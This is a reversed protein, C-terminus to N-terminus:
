IGHRERNEQIYEESSNTKTSQLLQSLEAQKQNNEIRHQISDLMSVATQKVPADANLALITKILELDHPMGLMMRLHFEQGLKENWMDKQSEFDDFPKLKEVKELSNFANVIFASEEEINSLREKVKLLRSSLQQKKRSLKRRRIAIRKDDDSLLEEDKINLLELNDNVDDIEMKLAEITEKRTKLERVCRWLKAQTTPEKGILFFKLQFFSHREKSPNKTIRDIELHLNDM